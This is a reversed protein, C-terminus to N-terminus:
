LEVEAPAIVQVDHGSALKPLRVETVRWGRHALTGSFPPQGVLNGTPRIASADFGPELTVRAGEAEQRIPALTFHTRLAKRCGEHVVRVAAGIEADAYQAVDEELFDVLRGELQLLGLLQLASDPTTELLIQPEPQPSAPEAGGGETQKLVAGALRADFLISLALGFRRIFSPLQGTM